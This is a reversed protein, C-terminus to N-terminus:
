ADNCLVGTEHTEALTARQGVPENRIWRSTRNGQKRARKPAVEPTIDPIVGEVLWDLPVDTVMSWVVLDPYRPQTRGHLYNSVTTRSVQLRDAMENVSIEGYELSLAMRHRMSFVPVEEKRMEDRVEKARLVM